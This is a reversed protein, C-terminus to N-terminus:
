RAVPPSENHPRLAREILREAESFLAPDVAKGAAIANEEIQEVRTAGIIASAADPERLTWALAFQALTLGATAALPKIQQVAELVPRSLFAKDFMSGCDRKCCALREACRSWSPVQWEFCRTGAAVVRNPLHWKVPV